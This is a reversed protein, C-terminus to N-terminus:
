MVVEGKDCMKCIREDRRVGCWRGTEIRLRATGGRLNMLMRRQRKCDIEVCRAKCRCDMLREMVELKSRVRAEERWGERARRLATCKLIHKVESLSLGGLAQMDLEQWGFAELGVESREGM